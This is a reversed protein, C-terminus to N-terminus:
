SVLLFWTKEIKSLTKDLCEFTIFITFKTNPFSKPRPLGHFQLVFTKQDPAKDFLYKLVFTKRYSCRKKCFVESPKKQDNLIRLELMRFSTMLIFYQIFCSTFRDLMLTTNISSSFTVQFAFCVVWHQQMPVHIERLCQVNLLHSSHFVWFILIFSLNQVSTSSLTIYLLFFFGISLVKAVGGNPCFGIVTALPQLAFILFKLFAITKQVM